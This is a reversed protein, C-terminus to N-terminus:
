RTYKGSRRNSSAKATNTVPPPPPPRGGSHQKKKPCIRVFDAILSFHDSCSWSLNPISGMQELEYIHPMEYLGVVQLQQHTYWIYDVCGKQWGHYATYAPERYDGKLEVGDRCTVVSCSETTTDVIQGRKQTGGSQGRITRDARYGSSTSMTCSGHNNRCTAKTTTSVTRVATTTSKCILDGTEIDMTTNVQEMTDFYSTLECGGVGREEENTLSGSTNSKSLRGGGGGYINTSYASRLALPLCLRWLSQGDNFSPHPRDTFKSLNVAAALPGLWDTQTLMRRNTPCCISFRGISSGRGERGERDVDYGGKEMLHQGSLEKRDLETFDMIGETLWSYLASQPTMNFDGCVVCDVNARACGQAKAAKGITDDIDSFLMCLQGVKVDGRKTNFLLHSNAVLLLRHTTRSSSSHSSSRPPPPVNTSEKLVLILAVQDRDMVSNESIFFKVFHNECCSFRSTKWFTAVGDVKGRTKQVYYGEYGSSRMSNELDEFNWSDVEQLCVVDAEHKLIEQAVSLRRNTWNMVRKNHQAYKEDVLSQALINFSMVRFVGDTTGDRATTSRPGVSRWVRRFPLTRSSSM